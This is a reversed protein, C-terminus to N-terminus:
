HEGFRDKQWQRVQSNIKRGDSSSMWERNVGELFNILKFVLVSPQPLATLGDFCLDTQVGCESSFRV